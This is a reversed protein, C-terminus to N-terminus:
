LGLFSLPDVSGVADAAATGADAGLGFADAPVLSSLDFATFFSSLNLDGLPTILTDTITPAAGTTASPIDSYVDYFGGGYNTVDYVSDLAPLSADTAPSTPELGTVEFGTNTIGFLQTVNETATIYGDLTPTTSGSATTYIDFDQTNLAGTDFYSPSGTGFDLPAFGETPDAPSGTFPDFTYSGITFADSGPVDPFAETQALAVGTSLFAAALMGGGVAGVTLTRRAIM